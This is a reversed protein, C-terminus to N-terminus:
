YSKVRLEAIKKSLADLAEDTNDLEAVTKEMPCIDTGQRNIIKETLIDYTCPIGHSELYAKGSESMTKGHVCAIGAKVFLMAAAKGVIVDAASFGTLDRGQAIFKMMPSIGRDDDTIIEGSRCLCISHGDLNAKATEIDTM